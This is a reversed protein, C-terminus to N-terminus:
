KVESTDRKRRASGVSSQAGLVTETLLSHGESEGGDDNGSSPDATGSPTTSEVRGSLSAWRDAEEVLRQAHRSPRLAVVGVETRGLGSGLTTKSGVEIQRFDAGTARAAAIAEDLRRASAAGMDTARLVVTGEPAERLLGRVLDMGLALIGARRGIGVMEIIRAELRELTEALLAEVAEPEPARARGRFARGVGKKSLAERFTQPTATIYIGRGPAKGRLDVAPVGEPSLVLRILARQPRRERSVACQRMPVHGDGEGGANRKAAASM